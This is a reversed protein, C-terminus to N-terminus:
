HDIIQVTQNKHLEHVREDHFVQMEVLIQLLDMIIEDNSIIDIYEVIVNWVFLFHMQCQLIVLSTTQIDNLIKHVIMNVHQQLYEMIQVIKTVLSMIMMDNMSLDNFASMILCDVDFVLKVQECTRIKCQSVNQETVQHIV